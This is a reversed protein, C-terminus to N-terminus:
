KSEYESAKVKTVHKGINERKMPQMRVVGEPFAISQGRVNVFRAHRYTRTFPRTRREEYVESGDLWSGHSEKQREEEQEPPVSIIIENADIVKFIHKVPVRREKNSHERRVRRIGTFAKEEYRTAALYQGAIISSLAFIHAWVVLMYKCLECPIITQGVEQCQRRPCRYLHFPHAYEWPEGPKSLLIDSVQAFQDILYLQYGDKGTDLYHTPVFCFMAAISSSEDPNEIPKDFEVWAGRFSLANQYIVELSREKIMAQLEEVVEDFHKLKDILMSMTSSTFYIKDGMSVAQLLAKNGSEVIYNPEKALIRQTTQATSRLFEDVLLM